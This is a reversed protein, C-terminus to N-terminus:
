GEEGPRDTGENLLALYETYEFIRPPRGPGTARGRREEPARLRVIQLEILSGLRRELTPLSMNTSSALNNVKSIPNQCFERHLTLSHSAARRDFQMIREKDKEFLATMQQIKEVADTAVEQVGTFFFSLWLEWDGTRRVHDLLDYYRQRNRKFYLSLYLLPQQLLNEHHLLMTILLRGTRGNGDLFPHITEFQVHALAAKVLVPYNEDHLFDELKKMCNEVENPPPPVFDADGPRLGGIWNQSRRFKGPDMTVGRGRSLLVKHIERLLRNCLPFGGRLRELGHNLADVYLSPEVADEADGPHQRDTEHAAEHLLLDSLSSKTGEIQSSLIAERRVYHRIFRRPDPVAATSFDLRGLAAQAQEMQKLLALDFALPPNPPLPRPVFARVEEGGAVSTDWAGIEGRNM